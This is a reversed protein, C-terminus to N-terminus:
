IDEAVDNIEILLIESDIIADRYKLNLHIFEGQEYDFSEDAELKLGYVGDNHKMLKLKESGAKDSERVGVITLDDINFDDNFTFRLGDIDAGKHNEDVTGSYTIVAEYRFPIIDFDEISLEGDFGQLVFVDNDRDDKIVGDVMRVDGDDNIIRDYQLKKIRIIDEDKIFDGVTDKGRDTLSLVFIDKGADGNLTDFGNGGNLTDDGYGGKLIDRGKGGYLEDNGEGGDLEDRGEGGYLKDNYNGEGGHLDDHGAGGYLKDEGALGVLIDDGSGGILISDDAAIVFPESLVGTGGDAFGGGTIAAVFGDYDTLVGDGIQFSYQKGGVVLENDPTTIKIVAGTELTITISRVIRIVDLTEFEVEKVATIGVGHDFKIINQGLEDNIEINGTQFRTIIMTDNSAGGSFTLYEYSSGAVLTDHQTSNSLSISKFDGMDNDILTIRQDEGIQVDPADANIQTLRVSFSKVDGRATDDLISFSITQAVSSGSTFIVEGSLASFDNFGAPLQGDLIIEWRVTYDATLVANPTVTFEYPIDAGETAVGPLSATFLIETSTETSATSDGAAPYKIDFPTTLPGKNGTEFGGSTIAMYFNDYDMLVGDGIQFSYQKGGGVLENDPTTIKIVAGTELTITVLSTTGEMKKEVVETIGVGHDFKIINEGLGDNISVNGTQFRTIIMTDNGAGGSFTLYEYSSGAVLTDDQTSNALSISTFDGMDNDILIIQKDEDIQVKEDGNIQTLRLSFTKAHERSKDDFIPLIITKDGSMGVTFEVEGSLANFDGSGAPLKGNLIIEWRVTYDATLVANPTVTFTYDTGETATSDGNFSFLSM